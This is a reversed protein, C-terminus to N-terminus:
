ADNVNAESNNEPKNDSNGNELKNVMDNLKSLRDVLDATETGFEESMTQSLSYASNVMQRVSQRLQSEM